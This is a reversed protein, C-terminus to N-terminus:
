VLSRRMQKHWEEFENNIKRSQMEAQHRESRFMDPRPRLLRAASGFDWRQPYKQHLSEAASAELDDWFGPDDHHVFLRVLKDYKVDPDDLTVRNYIEKYVDTHFDAVPLIYLAEKIPLEEYKFEIQDGHALHREIQEMLNDFERQFFSNIRNRDQPCSKGLLSALCAAIGLSAAMSDLLAERAEKTLKRFPLSDIAQTIESDTLPSTKLTM